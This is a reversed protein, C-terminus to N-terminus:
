FSKTPLHAHEVRPVAGAPMKGASSSKLSLSLGNSTQKLGSLILFLVGNASTFATGFM